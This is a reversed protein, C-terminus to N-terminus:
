KVGENPYPITRPLEEKFPHVVIAGVPCAMECFYCVMCDDKYRAVAKSGCTMCRQAEVLMEEYQFGRSGQKGALSTRSLRPVAQIGEGPLRELLPRPQNRGELLDWGDMYRLISEAAERGGAVAHPISRGGGIVDGAAFVNRSSTVYSTPSVTILCDSTISAVSSFPPTERKGKEKHSGVALLFAKYGKEGLASFHLDQGDGVRAGCQFQIGLRKMYEIQADLVGQDLEPYGGRFLGGPKEAKEFVTVSFGYRNLYYAGTLGAAGSGIVAVRGTRTVPTAEPPHALAWDGVFQELGNVNVAEDVKSRACKKECFRHCTRGTLAPIPNTEMLVSAAERIKGQQLLHVYARIDVGAPCANQCPPMEAQNTNLRFVDLGCTKFCAGCGICKEQDIKRLM